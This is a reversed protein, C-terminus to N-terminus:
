RLLAFCLLAFCRLCVCRVMFMAPRIFTTRLDYSPDRLVAEVAAKQAM